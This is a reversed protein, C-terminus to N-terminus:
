NTKGYYKEVLKLDIMLDRATVSPPFGKERRRVIAQITNDDLERTVVRLSYNPFEGIVVDGPKLEGIMRSYILRKRTVLRRVGRDDVLRLTATEPLTRGRANTIRGDPHVTYRSFLSLDIM